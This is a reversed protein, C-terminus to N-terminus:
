PGVGKVADIFARWAAPDFTLVPGDHEKSDRVQVSGDDAVRQLLCAGTSCRTSRRWQGTM